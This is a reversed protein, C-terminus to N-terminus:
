NANSIGNIKQKVEHLKSWKGMAVLLSKKEGSINAIWGTPFSSSNSRCHTGWTALYSFVYLIHLHQTYKTPLHCILAQQTIRIPHPFFTLYFHSPCPEIFLWIPFTCHSTAHFFIWAGKHGLSHPFCLQATNTNLLTVPFAARSPPFRSLIDPCSMETIALSSPGTQSMGEGAKSPGQSISLFIDDGALEIFVVILFSMKFWCSFAWQAVPSNSCSHSIAWGNNFTLTGIMANRKRTGM